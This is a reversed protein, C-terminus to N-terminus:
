PVPRVLFRALHFPVLHPAFTTLENYGSSRQHLGRRVDRGGLGAAALTVAGGRGVDLRAEDTDGLAHTSMPNRPM